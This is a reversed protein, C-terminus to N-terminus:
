EKEKDKNQFHKVVPWLTIVITFALITLGYTYEPLFDAFPYFHNVMCFIAYVIAFIILYPKKKTHKLSVIAMLTLTLTFLM